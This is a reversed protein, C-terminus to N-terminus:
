KDETKKTLGNEKPKDSLQMKKIYFVSGVAIVYLVLWYTLAAMLFGPLLMVLGSDNCICLYELLTDTIAFPVIYYIFGIGDKNMNLMLYTQILLLAAFAICLIKGTLRTMACRQESYAMHIFNSVIIGNVGLCYIINATWFILTSKTESVLLVSLVPAQLIGLAVTMASSKFICALILMALEVTGATLVGAAIYKYNTKM